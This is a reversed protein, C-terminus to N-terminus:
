NKTPSPLFIKLKFGAQAVYSSTETELYLAFCFVLQLIYSKPKKNQKAKTSFYLVDGNKTNM